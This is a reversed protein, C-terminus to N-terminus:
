GQLQNLVTKRLKKEKRARALQLRFEFEKQDAEFKRKLEPDSDLLANLERLEEEPDVQKFPM